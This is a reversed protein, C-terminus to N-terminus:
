CTFDAPLVPSFHLDSPISRLGKLGFDISQAHNDSPPIGAAVLAQLIARLEGTTVIQCGHRFLKKYHLLLGRLPSPLKSTDAASRDFAAFYHSPV